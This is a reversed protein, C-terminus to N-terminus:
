SNPFSPFLLKTVTVDHNFQPWALRHLLGAILGQIWGGGAVLREIEVVVAFGGAPKDQEQSFCAIDICYFVM